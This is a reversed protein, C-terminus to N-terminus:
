SSIAVIYFNYIAIVVSVLLPSFQGNKWSPQRGFCLLALILLPFFISLLVLLGGILGLFFSTEHFLVLTSAGSSTLLLFLIVYRIKTLIDRFYITESICIIMVSLFGIFQAALHFFGNENESHASVLYICCLYSVVASFVCIWHVLRYHFISWSKLMNDRNRILLLM